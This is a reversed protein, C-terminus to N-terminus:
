VGTGVIKAFKPIDTGHPSAVRSQRKGERFNKLCQAIMLVAHEDRMRVSANKTAILNNRLALLPNGEDLGSGRLMAHHIRMAEEEDDLWICYIATALLKGFAMIRGLEQARSSWDRLQPHKELAEIVEHATPSLTYAKMAGAMYHRIAKALAALQSYNAEGMSSLVDSASRRKGQDMTAFAAKKVGRVVVVRITVGSRIIASLRHQGNILNGDEDFIITEGNMFWNGASMERAYKTIDRESLSRNRHNMSMYKVAKAPGINEIEVSENWKM